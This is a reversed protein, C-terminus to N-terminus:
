RAPGDNAPPATTPMECDPLEGSTAATTASARRSRAKVSAIVFPGRDFSARAALAVNRSRQPGSRATAAVFVYVVEHTASAISAEAVACARRRV